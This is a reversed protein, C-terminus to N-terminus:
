KLCAVIGAQDGQPELHWLMVANSQQFLVQDIGINKGAFRHYAADISNADAVTTGFTLTVSNGLLSARFAGGTASSAVVDGAPAAITAGHAALCARTKAATYLPRNTGCATLLAAVVLVVPLGTALHTGRSRANDPHAAEQM